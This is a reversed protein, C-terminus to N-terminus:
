YRFKRIIGLTLAVLKVVTPSRTYQVTAFLAQYKKPLISFDHKLKFLDIFRQKIILNPINWYVFFFSTALHLLNYSNLKEKSIIGLLEEEHLSLAVELQNLKENDFGGRSTSNDHLYYDYLYDNILDVKTINKVISSTTLLDEGMSLKRKYRKVNEFLERRIVKNWLVPSIELKFLREFYQERSIHEFDYSRSYSVKDGRVVKNNFMLIDPANNNICKTIVEIFTRKVTDDVDIFAVYRNNSATIGTLRADFSGRNEQEIVKFDKFYQTFSLAISMTNDFSGDNVIILEFDSETQSVLSELCNAIYNEANFVPIIISIKNKM